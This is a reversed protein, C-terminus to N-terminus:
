SPLKKALFAWCTGLPLSVHRLARREGWLMGRMLRETIKSPADLERITNEPSRFRDLIASVLAVPTAPLLIGSSAQVSFGARSLLQALESRTWRRAAMVARDHSRELSRFAPETLLLYGGPRLAANVRKLVDGPDGVWAHYLVHFDVVMDFRERGLDHTNLDDNVLESYDLKQCYAVGEPSLEIGTVRGYRRLFSWETGVGSGLELVARSGDAEVGERRLWYEFIERRHVVWWHEDSLERAYQHYVESKM